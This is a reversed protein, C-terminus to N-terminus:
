ETKTTTTTITDLPVERTQAQIYNKIYESSVTTAEPNYNKNRVIPVITGVIQAQRLLLHLYEPVSFILASASQQESSKKFIHKGNGDKVALVEIGEILKGIVLYSGDYTKYYIDIKDKPYISNGYTTKNNVPLSVITENDPIEGWASDPMTDWDVVANTYFLSGKPIKTNYNVYRNIIDAKNTYVNTTIASAAVKVTTIMEETIQERAAIDVKAVPVEIASIKKNVRNTYSFALIAVCIIGALITVVTKNKFANM